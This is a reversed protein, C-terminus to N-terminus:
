SGTTTSRGSTGVGAAGCWSPLGGYPAGAPLDSVLGFGAGRAAMLDRACELDAPPVAYVLHGDGPQAGDGSWEQYADWAGEFSCVAAGLPRYSPDPPAGPNLVLEGLGIRRAARLALAVPGLAFPSTPVQDFFLGRVPYAAWRSVDALLAALPRASYGVDVYGLMPVRASALATTADAYTPDRRRGPGDHVNVVVTVDPHDAVALWAAPAVLPHVYLPLLTKM